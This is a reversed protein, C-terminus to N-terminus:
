GHRNQSNLFVGKGPIQDVIIYEKQLFVHLNSPRFEGGKKHLYLLGFRSNKKKWYIWADISKGSVSHILKSICVINKKKSNWPPLLDFGKNIIKHLNHFICWGDRFGHLEHLTNSCCRKTCSFWFLCAYDPLGARGNAPAMVLERQPFPTYHSAPTARYHSWNSLCWVNDKMCVCLM